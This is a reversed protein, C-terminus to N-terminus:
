FEGDDYQHSLDGRAQEADQKSGLLELREVRIVPKSRSVGSARDQWYEFKLSGQVGILSGKRVYSGAVEATKDWMELNFWDPEDSNRTPRNVALAFNCVVKGSEFYKVEPDRGARGVLTVLNLSM